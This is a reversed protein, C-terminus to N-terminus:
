TPLQILKQFDEQSGNFWDIDVATSIGPISGNGQRQWFMWSPWKDTNPQPLETYHASWLPYQIWAPDTLNFRAYSPSVYVLPKQYGKWEALWNLADQQNDESLSGTEIDLVPPLRMLDLADVTGLFHDAQAKWDDKPRWFHYFGFPLGANTGGDANKGAMPDVTLGDTAKIFAFTVGSEAVKSWDIEGQYHSVDIGLLANFVPQIVSM